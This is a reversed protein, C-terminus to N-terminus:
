MSGGAGWGVMVMLLLLLGLWGAWPAAQAQSNVSSLTDDPTQGPATTNKSSYNYTGKRPDLGFAFLLTTTIITM